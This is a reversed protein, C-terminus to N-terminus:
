RPRQLLNESGMRHNTAGHTGQIQRWSEGTGRALAQWEAATHCVREFGALTGIRVQRRCIPRDAASVSNRDPDISARAVPQQGAGQDPDPGAAPQQLTVGALSVIFSLIM